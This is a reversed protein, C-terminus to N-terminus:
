MVTTNLMMHQTLTNWLKRDGTLVNIYQQLKTEDNIDLYQFDSKVIDMWCTKRRGCKKKVKCLYEALAKKAPTEEDLRLLHSIWSLRRKKVISSWKEVGTKEYLETNKVIKPWRVSMLQCLLKRQFSDIKDAIAKTTTWLESKYLFINRFYAKFLNLKTKITVTHPKLLPELTKMTSITLGKRRNIDSETDPLTGLCKCKKWLDKEDPIRFEERKSENETLNGKKLLDPLLLKAQNMKTEYTRIFSIDDVYKSDIVVQHADRDIIWNLQSWLVKNGFGKKTPLGPVVDVFKALYFIFLLASLCDGQAVGISTLIEEGLSRGM